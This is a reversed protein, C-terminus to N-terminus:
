KSSKYGILLLMSRFNLPLELLVHLNSILLLWYLGLRFDKWYLGLSLLWIAIIAIMRLHPINNWKIINTKSFWNLYHYTYAFAIFRMVLIGNVSEFVEKDWNFNPTTARVGTINALWTINIARFLGYNSRAYDSIQYAGATAYYNLLLWACIFLIILAAIGIRSKSKITGYLMFFATFVFVHVLTPLFIAFFIGYKVGLRSTLIILMLGAIRYYNNKVVVFLLATFFIIYFIVATMQDTNAKGLLGALGLTTAVVALISLVIADYGKNAYYKNDHLWSIETLYHLPGLVAYSFIFLEFPMIFAVWCSVLMLGINLLDVKETSSLTSLMQKM